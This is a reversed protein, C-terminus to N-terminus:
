LGQRDLWLFMYSFLPNRVEKRSLVLDHLGGYVTVETVKPGLRRGYKSIDEVDLVADARSYMSAPDGEKVSRDSHMLLIPVRIHPNDQIIGQAVDIARIWGADVNPSVMLKWSTDYNWEGEYAALLSRAYGTGGGQSISIDPLLRAAGRVLPILFREQFNSQNWDLFPSNLILAKVVTDPNENMYLATTLGGTSHGILIIENNGDRKMQSLASDIDAFYEKMDRVQFKKQGEMISRGYKRLDVAYFNYCSDVFRNGMEAQFFYDNFGHVYLVARRVDNCASQKRVITCRVKGAYDDPQNVRRMEYGDGLVDPSWQSFLASCGIWLAILASVVRFM